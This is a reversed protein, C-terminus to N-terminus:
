FWAEAEIAFLSHWHREPGAQFYNFQDLTEVFGSGFAAQQTSYQLGYLLRLSPRNYVGRGLPNLILGAKIQWTDRTDSDGFELGRTDASGSTSRFLSDSHQRFLNGRISKERALATEALLHVTDTLFYQLRLVTSLVTRNDEGAAIQNDANLDYIFLAGWVAELKDPIVRLQAENGLLLSYRQDTFDSTYITFRQGAFTEEYSREPHNRAARLYLNDWILPGVGGFGLDAVATWSSGSRPQPLDTSGLFPPGIDPHREYYRLMVERRWIDEYTTQPLSSYLANRNGAVPPEHRLQGGFGFNLHDSWRYRFMAGASLVTNYTGGRINFGADGVGVMLDYKERSYTGSLGVTDYFINSIREDYLGLYGYYSDITGLQWTVNEVLVNGAKVYLQTVRFNNLAGQGADSAHFSGGEIKTHVSAWPDPKGPPNQLVDLKLELAGWPGENLLRGYYRSYGLQSFGGQFDPRTMIRFYGGASFRDRPAEAYGTLPALATAVVLLAQAM